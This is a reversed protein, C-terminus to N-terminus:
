PKLREFEALFLDRAEKWTMPKIIESDPEPLDIWPLPPHEMVDRKETALARLDAHKIAPSHLDDSAIGLWECVCEDITDTVRSLTKRFGPCLDELQCKFPTIWDGVWTEHVDHLLGAFKNPALKSVLVSHQAVSYIGDFNLSTHGEFRTKKALVAAIEVIDFHEKNPNLFEFAKGKATQMWEQNCEYELAM